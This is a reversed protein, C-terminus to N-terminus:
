GERAIEEVVRRTTDHSFGRRLLFDHLKKRRKRPDEERALRPWRRLAQERAAEVVDDRVSFVRAVTQEILRRDIGRRLLDNQVRRPGYGGREFRGRAYAEAYAADDLYGLERMRAVAQEAVGESFGSRALKQRVEHESRARHALYHLAKSKAVLVQDASALREQTAVDLALGKHLGHQLVVDRHLGFAFRGDLYVSVREPNRTQAVLRTITGPALPREGDQEKM